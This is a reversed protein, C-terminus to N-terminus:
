VVYYINEYNKKGVCIKVVSLYGNPYQHFPWCRRKKKLLANIHSKYKKLLDHASNMFSVFRKQLLVKM